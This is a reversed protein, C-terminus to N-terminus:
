DAALVRIQRSAVTLMALDLSEVKKLDTLLQENREVASRNASLWKDLAGDVPGGDATELVAATLARQQGYLDDVIAMVAQRQWHSDASFSGASARLWDIGLREGVHFYVRGVDEVALNRRRAAQVIDLASVLVATSAVRAAIDGPVGQAAYGGVARELAQKRGDTLVAELDRGLAGIGPTFEDITAAIDLPHTRHRLFWATCREVLRGVDLLMATQVASAVKNDLDEIATWLSRLEFADRTITYARAIESAAHGTEEAFRHVFTPGVRNVM